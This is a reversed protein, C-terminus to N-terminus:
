GHSPEQGPPPVTVSLAHSEDVQRLMLKAGLVELRARLEADFRFGEFDAPLLLRLTQRDGTLQVQGIVAKAGLLVGQDIVRFVCEYLLGPYWVEARAEGLVVMKCSLGTPESLEALEAFHRNMTDASTPERALGQFFLAARRKVFCIRLAIRALSRRDVPGPPLDAILAGVEAVRAGVEDEMQHLLSARVQASLAVRESAQRATLMLNMGQLRTVALNLERQLTTVVSHDEQWVVQGGSIPVRSIVLDDRSADQEVSGSTTLESGSTAEVIHMDLTSAAFLERYRTNMPLMRSRVTAELLAMGGMITMMTLDTDYIFPVRVVYAVMYALMGAVIVAPLWALRRTRTRLSKITLWTIATVLPIACALAVVYYFPRYHYFQAYGVYYIDFAMEHWDNTMMGALLVADVVALWRIWKPPLGDDLPRDVAWALWLLCLPLTLMPLYYAYWLLNTHRDHEMPYKLYRLMLWFASLAAMLITARRISPTSARRAMSGAWTALVLLAFAPVVVAELSSATNAWRAGLVERRFDAWWTDSPEEGTLTHLQAGPPPHGPQAYGFAALRDGLGPSAPIPKASLLGKHFSLTGEAPIIIELNAGAQILERVQHDLGLTVAGPTLATVLGPGRRVRALLDNAEDTPQQTGTLGWSIAGMLMRIDPREGIIAVPVDSNVLDSWSTIVVETQARDIIIVATTLYDPRWHSAQGSALADLAQVDFVEAASSDLRWAIRSSHTAEIAGDTTARLSACYGSSLTDCYVDPEEAAGCSALLTLLVLLLWRGPWRSSRRLTNM